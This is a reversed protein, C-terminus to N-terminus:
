GLYEYLAMRKEESYRALILNDNDDQGDNVDSYIIGDFARRKKVYISVVYYPCKIYEDNDQKNDDYTYEYQKRCLGEVDEMYFNDGIGYPYNRKINDTKFFGMQRYLHEITFKIMSTSEKPEVHYDEDDDVM